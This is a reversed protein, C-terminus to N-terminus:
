HEDVAALPDRIRMLFKLKAIVTSTPVRHAGGTLAHSSKYRAV